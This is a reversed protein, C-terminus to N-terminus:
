RMRRSKIMRSIDASALFNHIEEDHLQKWHGMVEERKPVFMGRFVSNQFLRLRRTREELSFGTV